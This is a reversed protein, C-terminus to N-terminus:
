VLCGALRRELEERDLNRGIVVVRSASYSRNGEALDTEEGAYNVILWEGNKTEFIGKARVVQGIDRGKLGRFFEVLRYRDFYGSLVRSFQVLEKSESEQGGNFFFPTGGGKVDCIDKEKEPAEFDAKELEEEVGEGYSTLLVRAEKNISSITSRLTKAEHSDIKDCKNLVIIRASALQTKIFLPNARYDASFSVADLVAVVNIQRVYEALTLSRLVSLVNGITAIGTPEIILRRPKYERAIFLIQSKMDAKLTCCICGNALEVVDAGSNGLLEGDIGTEGFENVLVAIKERGPCKLLINKILTTKGCGLFGNVIDVRMM